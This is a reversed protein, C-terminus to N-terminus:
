AVLTYSYFLVQLFKRGDEHYAYASLFKTFSLILPCGETFERQTAKLLPSIKKLITDIFKCKWIYNINEKSLSLSQLIAFVKKTKEPEAGVAFGQGMEVLLEM